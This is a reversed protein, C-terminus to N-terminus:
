AGKRSSTPFRDLGARDKGYPDIRASRVIALVELWRERRDVVV